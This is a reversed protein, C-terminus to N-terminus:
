QGGGCTADHPSIAIAARNADGKFAVYVRNGHDCKTAVSSFGDPMSIIDAPTANRNGTRPSDKFQEQGKQSCGVLAIALGVVLALKKM